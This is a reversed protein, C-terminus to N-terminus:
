KPSVTHPQALSDRQVAVVGEISLLDGIKNAPLTMSVGGYAARLM